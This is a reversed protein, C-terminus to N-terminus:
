ATQALAWRLAEDLAAFKAAQWHFYDGLLTESMWFSGKRRPSEWGALGDKEVPSFMRKVNSVSIAYKEALDALALPGLIIRTGERRGGPVRAILDHLVMGGAESWLFHGISDRPDHWDPDEVLHGAAHQQALRFLDPRGTVVQLRNGGDLRDLGQMHCDFWGQMARVSVETPELVRVRKDPIDPVERLFKYALMEQLFASATNRSAAGIEVVTDILRSATLGSLPDAPDRASSLAFLSQTIMWKRHSSKLRSIRPTSEHIGILRRAVIAEAEIFDPHSAIAHASLAPTTLPGSVPLFRPRADTM